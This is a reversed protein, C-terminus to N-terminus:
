ARAERLPNFVFDALKSVAPNSIEDDFFDFTLHDDAPSGRGMVGLLECKVPGELEQRAIAEGMPNRDALKM